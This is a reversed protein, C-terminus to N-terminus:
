DEVSGSQPTSPPRATVLDGGLWDIKGAMKLALLVTRVERTPVAALRALEDIAIPTPSLLEILHREMNISR